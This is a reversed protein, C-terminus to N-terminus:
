VLDAFAEHLQALTGFDNEKLFDMLEYKIRVPATPDALAATGVCVATAGAALFEAADEGTMIGGMGIVPIKVANATQWVMRLAVPKVAPGSFGGVKRALVARRQKLDIKMGLLTNILSVADAGASEVARAIEAIDTVNPTLKVIIPKSAAAKVEKTLLEAMKPDTGFAIGGESVNPCSINIEYMDIDGCRNLLEVAHCYEDVSHGAVNTIIKTNFKRLFPIEERLYTAVGSNQLGVSNLMGGYVEAIRPTDNGPWPKDSVGKTVAAGLESIDYFAGSHKASFTGSATFIPNSFHVGAIDVSMDISRDKAKIIMKGSSDANLTGLSHEDRNDKSGKNGNKGTNGNNSNNSINGANSKNGNKDSNGTNSKNGANSKSGNNDSNEGVGANMSEGLIIGSPLDEEFIIDDPNDHSLFESVESILDDMKGEADHVRGELESDSIKKGEHKKTM